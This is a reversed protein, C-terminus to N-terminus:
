RALEFSSVYGLQVGYPEMRRTFQNVRQQSDAHPNLGEITRQILATLGSEVGGFEVSPIAAVLRDDADDSLSYEWYGNGAAVRSTLEIGVSGLLQRRSRSALLDKPSPSLGVADRLSDTVSSLDLPRLVGVRAADLLYTRIPHIHYEYMQNARVHDTVFKRFVVEDLAVSSSTENIGVDMWVGDGDSLWLDESEESLSLMLLEIVGVVHPQAYTAGSGPRVQLVTNSKTPSSDAGSCAACFAATIATIKLLGLPREM